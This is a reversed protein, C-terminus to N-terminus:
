KVRRCVCDSVYISQHSVFLTCCHRWRAYEILVTFLM